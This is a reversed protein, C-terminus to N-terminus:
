LHKWNKKQKELERKFDKLTKLFTGVAVYDVNNNISVEKFQIEYSTVKNDIQEFTEKDIKLNKLTQIPILNKM